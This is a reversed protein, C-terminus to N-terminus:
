LLHQFNFGVILLVGIISSIIVIKSMKNGDFTEELNMKSLIFGLALFLLIDFLGHTKWHHGTLAKMWQMVPDNTEKVIVLLGNVVSVIAASLGFGVTSKNLM